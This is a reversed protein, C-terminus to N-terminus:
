VSITALSTSNATCKARDARQNEHFQPDRGPLQIAKHIMDQALIFDAGQRHV